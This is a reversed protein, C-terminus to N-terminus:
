LNLYFYQWEACLGFLRRSPTSHVYTIYIDDWLGEKLGAEKIKEFDVTRQELKERPYQVNSLADASTIRRGIEAVRSYRDSELLERLVHKGVAGTAGVILATRKGPGSM